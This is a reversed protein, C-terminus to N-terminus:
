FEDSLRRVYEENLETTKQELSAGFEGMHDNFESELKRIEKRIRALDTRELEDAVIQGKATLPHRKYGGGSTYDPDESILGLEQADEIRDQITASSVALTERLVIFRKSGDQLEELLRVGGKKSLFDVIREVEADDFEDPLSPGAGEGTSNSDVVSRQEKLHECYSVGSVVYVLSENWIM